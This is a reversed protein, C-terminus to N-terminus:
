KRRKTLLSIISKQSEKIEEIDNKFEVFKVELIRLDIKQQALEKELKSFRNSTVQRDYMYYGGITTILAGVVAGLKNWIEEMM